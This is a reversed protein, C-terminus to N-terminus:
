KSIVATYEAPLKGYVNKFCRAFYSPSRFGVAAAVENIRINKEKLMKAAVALRKNKLYENPTTGYLEKIKRALTSRSMYLEEEMQKSGFTDDSINKLIVEELRKEFDSDRDTVNMQRLAQLAAASDFIDDASAKGSKLVRKVCAKLYDMAFPKEIYMLAGAELCAIKVEVSSVGSLIIRPIRDLVKDGNLARCFDVGSMGPLSIDSIILNVARSRLIELGREASRVTIVNCVSRLEKRLYQSLDSSDEVLLVSPLANDTENGDGPEDSLVQKMRLPMTLVFEVSERTDSLTLSGEHLEVLKKAMPLGIGFSQAAYQGAANFKVFPKFIDERREEPIQQGDNRFRVVLKEEDTWVAIRILSHAYKVANHVLNNFVKTMASADALMVLSDPSSEIELSLNRQAALGSFDSCVKRLLGVVDVNRVDLVYGHQEVRVYDLLEKVLSGIYDASDSILRLNGMISEDSIKGSNLISRLPTLMLTLPTKIEHIVDSFFSMKENLLTKERELRDKEERRQMKKKSRLHLVRAIIAIIASALLLYIAIAMRSRWFREEVYVSLPSHSVDWNVGDMSARVKFRYEGAPVNYYYVSRDKSINRWDKEYGELRCQLHTKAVGWSPISLSFGFSNQGAKFTVKDALDINKDLRCDPDSPKVPRGAITLGSLYVKGPRREGKGFVSPNFRVFGRRSAFYLTGDLTKLTGRKMVNDLLGDNVTYHSMNMTVPDVELLGRDSSLWVHGDNDELANFYVDTDMNPRGSSEYPVFRGESRDYIAFGYTLGVAWIRDKSDVLLSSVKDTPLRYKGSAESSYSAEIKEDSPDYRFIGNAYTSVWIKGSGDEVLDTVNLGNFVDLSEFRDNKRDYRSLGLTTGVYLDGRDTLFLTGIRNDKLAVRQSLSPYHKLAGSGTDYRYLGKMSGIWLYKGDMCPSMLDIGKLVSIEPDKLCDESCDYKLLTGCETTIWVTGKGDNAFGSVVYDALPKDDVSYYKRFYRQAKGSYNIGNYKTAVWLGGDTDVYVAFVYDHSISFPDSNNANIVFQTDDVIDYKYLGANTPMWLTRDKWSILGSPLAGAPIEQLIRKKGSKTDIRCLGNKVSAIYIVDNEIPSVVIGEINDSALTIGESDPVPALDEMSSDCHYLGSYYLAVWMGGHHDLEFCRINAPLCQRGDEVFYNRLNGSKTDYSFLGQGNVSFWIQGFADKRICNVKNVVRTGLDSLKDFSKFRDLEYDYELLGDDTGIWLNGNDDEAMAHIFDSKGCLEDRGYVTFSHGDYRNLGMYTGFWMFGRSDQLIARCDDYSLGSDSSNIHIFHYGDQTKRAFVPVSLIALAIVLCFKKM